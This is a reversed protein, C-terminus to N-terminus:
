NDHSFVRNLITTLMELSAPKTIYDEAGLRLAKVTYRSDSHTSYIVLPINRWEASSKVAETLEFGDMEPMVIDTIILDVKNARLVDQAKLGDEAELYELGAKTLLEKMSRRVTPYDDVFLVTKGQWPEAMDIEKL